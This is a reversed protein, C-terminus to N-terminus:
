ITGIKQKIVLLKQNKKSNSLSLSQYSYKMWLLRPGSGCTRLGSRFQPFLAPNNCSRFGTTDPWNTVGAAAASSDPRPTHRGLSWYHFCTLYHARKVVRTFFGRNARKWSKPHRRGINRDASRGGGRAVSRRLKEKVFRMEKHEKAHNGSSKKQM